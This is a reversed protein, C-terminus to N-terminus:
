SVEWGFLEAQKLVTHTAEEQKDPPYGYKRLLRKVMVRLKARASERVTWDITVNQRVTKVLERALKRLTEDGLVKVASDNTELADYFALEEESLGLKEGRRYAERMEKALKILEEIVEITSIARNHYRRITKELLESFKRAQVLNKRRRVKIEDNILKRLLEVALNKQPLNRVEALFEDSLISIDPKKLGAAEFLDIVGKPVLASSVIQRIAFEKDSITRGSRTIKVLAAKVSQFFAVEDRIKLAEERPVALAFAKSLETVSKIFADKRKPDAVFDAAERLIKLREEPKALLARRYDFGHFIDRCIEYKELMIAVAEDQDVAPEGRGGGATYTALARKLSDAIGIYDVVLGGPKDRFVRNVRAIAQMLNHGQMPKDIYMTHLCPVDFGTLWMDRVIVIKLPDNPDKFREALRERRAKNRIHPQWDSPDKASGTMVVKIVGKEDDESHWEPRLKIIENYLDVCIRRSMCVVMAKGVMASLRSEFHEVLDRAIVELRRKAGVITELQAWKTKLKEKQELEEEETVKEFEEDIKPKLEEPLELKALRSEYYIPVTAGDEVAQLVDYIDIYDGFVARTNRDGFEVPTGTFGVFTANPLADRLHRAFGDIFGYHSRHAEDAIVIINERDSLLPFGVKEGRERLSLSKSGAEGRERQSLPRPHPSFKQITTFIVGGSARRLLEKLHERSEAKLPRQRLLEHGRSFQSFLQDDLDNRDTIVVITPNKLAPHRILKGAFFLMTLSKGSGQTHWIVGGRRDGRPSAAELTKQAAKRAAHFQHYAAVKKVLGKRNEEFVIFHRILDLLFDKRFVGKILVELQLQTKPALEQGDITRWPLFWERGATLSGLRASLGDSIILLENYVFLSPIEQKYTQLQNFATWITAEEDAPNKLEIVAIPLGNLFVVVDPRRINQGEQVTFQNVVLWDNNEPNEFDVLVVREGRVEGDKLVEVEVGDVLMRHFARNNLILDPSDPHLVKRIADELAQVSVNSNLRYVAERLREELVVESCSDREAIDGGEGLSVRKNDTGRERQSLPQPHPSGIGHLIQYGLNEFWSLVTNELLSESIKM